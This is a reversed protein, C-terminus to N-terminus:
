IEWMRFTAIGYRIADCTHNDRDMPKKTNPNIRYRSMEKNTVKCRPHAFLSVMGNHDRIYRRVAKIGEDISNYGRVYEGIGIRELQVGMYVATPDYIAREAMPYPM